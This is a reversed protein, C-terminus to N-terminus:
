IQTGVPKSEPNSANVLGFFDQLCCGLVPYEMTFGLGGTWNFDVVLM